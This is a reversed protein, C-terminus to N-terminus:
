KVFKVRQKEGNGEVSFIYVGPSLTTTNLTFQNKGGVVQINQSLLKKGGMDIVSVAVNAPKDSYVSVNLGSETSTVTLQEANFSSNVAIVESSSYKGNYDVQKLQYYNIGSIPSYDKTSYYNIESSNGHGTIRKIEEFSVGDSSRLVEFHSNDKESVTTWKLNVANADYKGTFSTLTVPLTANTTTVYDAQLDALEISGYSLETLNAATGNTHVAFTNIAKGTSLSSKGAVAIDYEGIKVGNAWLHVAQSNVAYIDEDVVYYQKLASNNCYLEINSDSGNANIPLEPMAVFSAAGNVFPDGGGPTSVKRHSVVMATQTENVQLRFSTFLSESLSITSTSTIADGGRFWAGVGSLGTGSDNYGLMLDYYRSGSGVGPQVVNGDGDDDKYHTKLNFSFKAIPSAVADDINRILLKSLQNTADIKLSKFTAGDKILTYKVRAGNAAPDAKGASARTHINTTGVSAPFWGPVTATSTTTTGAGPMYLSAPVESKFLITESEDVFDANRDGTLDYSWSAKTGNWDKDQANVVGAVFCFSILQLLIKM